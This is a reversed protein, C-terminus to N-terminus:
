TRFVNSFICLYNCTDFEILNRMAKLTKITMAVSLHEPFHTNKFFLQDIFSDAEDSALARSTGTFFNMKKYLIVLKVLFNVAQCTQLIKM